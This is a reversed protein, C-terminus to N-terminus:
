PEGARLDPYTRDRKSMHAPAIPWSISFAPDDWRVGRALDPDYFAGMQYHVMTDDTLTIFGHACGQPVFLARCNEATLEQGVWQCYTPSDPRLDVCVDFIAGRVCSVLKPDPVPQAQYHLGRLTASAANQSLNSQVVRFDLGADKFEKECFTRAFFGREDRIPEIEVLASGQIALGEIRM